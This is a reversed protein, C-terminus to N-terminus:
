GDYEISDLWADEAALPRHLQRSLAVSPPAGACVTTPEIRIRVVDSRAAPNHGVYHVNCRFQLSIESYVAGSRVQSSAIFGVAANSTAAIFLLASGVIISRIGYSSVM